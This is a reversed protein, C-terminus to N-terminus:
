LGLITAVKGWQEPTVVSIDNTPQGVASDIAPYFKKNALDDASLVVPQENNWKELLTWVEDSTSTRIAATKVPAARRTPAAPASAVPEVDVVPAPAKEKKVAKPTSVGSVASFKKSWKKLVAERQNDDLKDPLNASGGLPNFWQAKFALQAETKGAPTYEEVFCDALEFEAVGEENLPIAELDFPNLGDWGFVKKLNDISVNQLSGDAKGIVLTHKLKFGPVDECNTLECPIAVCLSGSEAEYVRLTQSRRAEYTGNKPFQKNSSM